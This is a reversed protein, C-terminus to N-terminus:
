RSRASFAPEQVMLVPRRSRLLVGQSVSGLLAKAIGSRGRSGVCIVDAAFREAAASILRAADDGTLIEVTTKRNGGAHEALRELQEHRRAREESAVDGDHLVHVIMIEGGSPAISLAYAVAANGLQSFDTAALVRRVEPEPLRTEEHVDPVCVVSMPAQRILSRSVSQEWWQRGEERGRGVVLLHANERTAVLSIADPTSGMNSEVVIKTEAVGQLRAAAGDLDRRVLEEVLPHTRDLPMPTDLALREYEEPPWSLHVVVFECPGHQPLHSAWEVPPDTSPALEAAVAVRLPQRERIWAAAPFDGRVVLVPVPSRSAVRDTTSGLLSKLGRHGVSGLVVLRATRTRAEELLVEEPAGVTIRTAVERGGGLREGLERMAREASANMEDLQRGILQMPPVAVPTIAHVIVLPEGHQEALLAAVECAAESAPSFDTGCVITM